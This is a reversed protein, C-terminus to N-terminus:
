EKGATMGGMYLRVAQSRASVGLKSFVRKLHNKVTNHSIDLILGIEENSKGQSVWHLVERERSSLQQLSAARAVQEASSCPSLCEVRRLSADVHSILVDLANPDIGQNMDTLSFIYLCDERGRNCRLGCVLVAEVNASFKEFLPTATKLGLKEGLAKFDEVVMWNQETSQVSQWLSYMANDLRETRELASTKVGPVSSALDYHFEGSAFDGWVAALTEHPLFAQMDRQLWQYFDFHTSIESASTLAEFLTEYSFLVSSLPNKAQRANMVSTSIAKNM